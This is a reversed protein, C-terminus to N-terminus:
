RKWFRWAAAGAGCLAALLLAWEWAHLHWSTAAHGPHASAEALLSSCVLLISTRM